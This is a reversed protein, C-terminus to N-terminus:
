SLVSRRRILLLTAAFLVLSAVVAGLGFWPVARVDNGNILLSAFLPGLAAGLLNAAPVLTATKRSPDISVAMGVQCPIIFMWVFGIALAAGWFVAAPVNGGLAVVAAIGVLCSFVVGAPWGLRGGSWTAAMAGAVQAVLSASVITGVTQADISVRAGIPELFAWIAGIFCFFAFISALAVVSHVSLVGRGPELRPLPGFGPPARLIVPLSVLSVVGLTAFGGASGWRPVVLWALLLALAAQALTQLMVFYGSLREATMARAILEIAIVVLLGELLGALARCAVYAGLGASTGTAFDAGALLILLAAAKAPVGRRIGIVPGLTSGLAIAIIEVTAVLALGDFDVKGEAFLAGLLIPQLGLVLLGVSGLWLAPLVHSALSEGVWGADNPRRDAPM